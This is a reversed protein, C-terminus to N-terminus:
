TTTIKITWNVTELVTTGGDDSIDVRVVTTKAAGTSTIYCERDSTLAQYTSAGNSALASGSVVTFKVHYAGAYGTHPVVWNTSSNWASGYASSSTKPYAKGDTDIKIGCYATGSVWTVNRFSGPFPQDSTLTVVGEVPPEQTYLLYKKLLLSM